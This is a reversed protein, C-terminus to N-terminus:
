QLPNIYVMKLDMKLFIIIGHVKLKRSAYAGFNEQIELNKTIVLLITEMIFFYNFIVGKEPQSSDKLADQWRTNGVEIHLLFNSERPPSHWRKM